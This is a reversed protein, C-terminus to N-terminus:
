IGNSNARVAFNTIVSKPFKLQDGIQTTIINEVPVQDMVAELTHAFNELIVITNVGADSLQHQLERPTYMPNVNVVVCGARLIGFIAIPYQLLNPMMVAVRTGKALNLDHQLYAGFAKSLRDVDAYTISTGMNSFASKTSFRQCSSEIIDRLSEDESMDIEHAVNPDYSALWTKNM